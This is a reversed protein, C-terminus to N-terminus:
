SELGSLQREWADCVQRTKRIAIGTYAASDWRAEDSFLDAVLAASEDAGRLADFIDTGNRRAEAAATRVREHADPVGRMALSVYIAESAISARSASLNNRMQLADPELGGLAQQMLGAAIVFAAFLEIAFRSSASNTLDRQHESIQDMLSTVMRPAFSKWLSKVTEFRFPNVKHPMTSSGVEGAPAITRLEAIESRTLHRVDDALNALVSFCSLVAYVLDTMFEPQVIQTSHDAPRLGLRGLIASEFDEPDWGAAASAMCHANYAGVAGSAKGRLESAARSIVAIRGGLRSVYSALAFGYTIPVAHQGHTRGIQVLEAAHRSQEILTRELACLVPLVVHRTLDRLRLAMATDMVDSSTLFLHVYPRAPEPALHQISRVLAAINHHTRSELRYVDEATVNDCAKCISDAIEEGCLGFDALTQAASKEVLLQYRVHAAESVYPSLAAFATPVLKYYRYDLPCIDDFDVRGPYFMDNM